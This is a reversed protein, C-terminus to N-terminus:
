CALPFLSTLIKFFDIVTKTEATITIKAVHKVTYVSVFFCSLVLSGGCIIEQPIDYLSFVKVAKFCVVICGGM